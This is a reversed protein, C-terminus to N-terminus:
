HLLLGLAQLKILGLRSLSPPPPPPIIPYFESAPIESKRIEPWNRIISGTVINIHFKSWLSFKVLPVRCRWFFKIIVDHRFITIGNDNKLNIALKSCDPLRTGSVHDTFSVNENICPKWETLSTLSFRSNTLPDQFTLSILSKKSFTQFSFKWGHM